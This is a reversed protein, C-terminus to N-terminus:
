WDYGKVKKFCEYFEQAGDLDSYNKEVTQLRNLYDYYSITMKWVLYHRRGWKSKLEITVGQIQHWALRETRGPLITLLVEKENYLIRERKGMVVSIALFLGPILLGTWNRTVITLMVAAAFIGFIFLWIKKKLKVVRYNNEM